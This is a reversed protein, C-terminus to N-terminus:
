TVTRVWGRRRLASTIKRLVPATNKLIDIDWIRISVWGMNRLERDVRADRTKNRSIKADWYPSLAGFKFYQPHGHWWVGDVHVAVRWKTFAVDPTGPIGRLHCRWGRLGASWLASRLALEPRTNKKKISAMVRRRIDANMKRGM